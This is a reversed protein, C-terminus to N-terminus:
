EIGLDKRLAAVLDSGLRESEAVADMFMAGSTIGTEVAYDIIEKLSENAHKEFARYVDVVSASGYVQIHGWIIHLADLSGILEKVAKGADYDQQISEQYEIDNAAQFGSKHGSQAGAFSRLCFIYNSMADIASLYERKKLDLISLRRARRDTLVGSVVQVVTSILAGIVVGVLSQYRELILLLNLDTELTAEKNSPPISRAMVIM